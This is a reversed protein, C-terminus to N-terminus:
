WTSDGRTVADFGGDIFVVQGTVHTNVESTLWVLLEAPAAPGMPGNLPMPVSQLVQERGEPTAMLPETMPTLVIGPAIANLPIGAGAWAETPAQRRLWRALARKSTPYNLYGIEPGSDELEKGRGLAEAETGSEIANLLREDFPGISTMSAVTAARPADSKALLPRLGELTAVAGYYNVAVTAAIPASLGAVAVVGDLVGGSLETARGIVDDRGSATTLDVEIDANRLDVGIVRHGRELLLDRTARGIGSAAGTVLYSRTM